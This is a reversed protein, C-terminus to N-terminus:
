PTSFLVQCDSAAIARVVGTATDRVAFAPNGLVNIPGLVTDSATLCAASPASPAVVAKNGAPPAAGTAAYPTSTAAPATTAAPAAATRAFSAAYRALDQVNNIAPVMAAGETAVVSPAEAGAADTANKSAASDSQPALATPPQTASSSSKANEGGNSAAKLAAVGIAVIVVAAAVRAMVRYARLRRTRLSTILAPQRVPTAAARQTADFQALAASIASSRVEDAVSHVDSLSDRVRTFSDVLAMTDPDAAVSAREAVDLEGDLYASAAEARASLEEDNM